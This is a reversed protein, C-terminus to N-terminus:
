MALTKEHQLPQQRRAYVMRALVFIVVIAICLLVCVWCSSLQSRLRTTMAMMKM